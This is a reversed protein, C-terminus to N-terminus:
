FTVFTKIKGSDYLISENYKEINEENLPGRFVGGISWNGIHINTGADHYIGNLSQYPTDLIVACGKSDTVFEVVGLIKGSELSIWKDNDDYIGNMNCIIEKVSNASKLNVVEKQITQRYSKNVEQKWIKHLEDAIYDLSLTFGNERIEKELKEIKLLVESNKNTAIETKMKLVEKM